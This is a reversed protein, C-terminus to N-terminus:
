NQVNPKDDVNRVERAIRPFTREDRWGLLWLPATIRGFASVLIITWYPGLVVILYRGEFAADLWYGGLLGTIAAMLGAGFRFITTATPVDEHDVMRLLTSRGAVNVIAFAGWFAYTATLWRPDLEAMLLCPMAGAVIALGFAYIVRNDYRDLLYGAAIALPLQVVYMTTELLAKTTLKVHLEDFQYKFLVSQTLGQAAALHLSTLLVRRVHRDHWLSSLVRRVSEMSHRAADEGSAPLDDQLSSKAPIFCIVAVGLFVALDALIFVTSYARIDSVEPHSALWERFVAAVPPLVISVTIIASERFGFLRGLRPRGWLEAIWTIFAVYSIARFCEAMALLGFLLPIVADPHDADPDLYGTGALALSLIRAIVAGWFWVRKASGLRHIFYTASLAALHVTEPLILFWAITSSDATWQRVYYILFSGSTLTAGATYLVQGILLLILWRLRNPHTM